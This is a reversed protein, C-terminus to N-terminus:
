VEYTTIELEEDIEERWAKYRLDPPNVLKVKNRSKFMPDEIEQYEIEEELSQSKIVNKQPQVGENWM